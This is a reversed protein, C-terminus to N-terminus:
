GDSPLGGDRVEPDKLMEDTMKEVTVWMARVLNVKDIRGDPGRAAEFVERNGSRVLDTVIEIALRKAQERTM